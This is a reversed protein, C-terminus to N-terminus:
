RPQSSQHGRRPRAELPPLHFPSSTTPLSTYDLVSSARSLDASVYIYIYIYIHGLKKPVAIAFAQPFHIEFHPSNDRKKLFLNICIYREGKAKFVHICIASDRQCQLLLHKHSTCKLTPPPIIVNKESVFKYLYIEGRQSQLRTYM